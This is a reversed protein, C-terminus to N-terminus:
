SAGRLRRLLGEDPAIDLAEHFALVHDALRKHLRHHNRSAVLPGKGLMELARKPDETLNALSDFVLAEFCRAHDLDFTESSVSREVITKALEAAASRLIEVLDTVPAGGRPQELALAARVDDVGIRVAEGDGRLDVSAIAFARRVTNDLQRLNGPWSGKALLACAEDTVDCPRAMYRVWGAIEDRRADLPPLHVPLVNVRYYLDERFRGARIQEPLNVNTGVIFRVDASRLQGDGLMRYTRTELLSLLGAQAKLSLKDVEDLFLTGGEARAVAGDHSRDAGTFAGRKWGFVEAMQMDDPVTLLDVVEFPGDALSSNAHVWAALRSKGSGTPGGLLVTESQFAFSSLLKLVPRMAEGVVPMMEDVLPPGDTRLPLVSLLPGVVDTLLQLREVFDAWVPLGVSALDSAELSIMGGIAGGTVRLPVGVVHTAGRELLRGRSEFVDSADGGIKVERGDDLTATQLTTDIMVPQDFQAVLRWATSSPTLWGTDRVDDGPIERSVLARYNEGGPRLHITGRLQTTTERRLRAEELIEGLVIGGATEFDRAKHCANLLTRITTSM